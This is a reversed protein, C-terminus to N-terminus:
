SGPVMVAKLRVNGAWINTLPMAVGVRDPVKEITPWIGRPRASTSSEEESGDTTSTCGLPIRRPRAAPGAVIVAVKPVAVAVAFM